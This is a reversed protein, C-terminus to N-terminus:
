EEYKRWNKYFEVVWKMAEMDNMWMELHDMLYYAAEDPHGLQYTDGLRKPLKEKGMIMQIVHKNSHFADMLAQDADKGAGQTKFVFYAYNYSWLATSDDKFKKYLRSFLDYQCHKLYLRSLDDRAGQNDNPNLRILEEYIKMAEKERGMTEFCRALGYKATMYPRTETIGWFRGKNKRFFLEGLQKEGLGIAKELLAAAKVPDTEHQALFNYARVSEPDIELAQHALKIGERANAEYARYMLDDARDKDTPRGKKKPVVEDIRKGTLNKALFDQVQELSEFHQEELYKMLRENALNMMDRTIPKGESIANGIPIDAEGEDDSDDDEEVEEEEPGEAVEGEENMIIYNGRGVNKDLTQLIGSPHSEKGVMVAPYGDLGFEIDMFEIREDDEELIYQSLKFDKHPRFGLEEAFAISGYIINHALVYAVPVIEDSGDSFDAMRKKIGSIVEPEQNFLWFTDKVGLCYLDVQFSGVTINGNTHNRTVLIFAMGSDEWGSNIYCEGLPLSRARNKIYKEPTDPMISFKQPLISLYKDGFTFFGGTIYRLNKASRGNFDVLNESSIEM